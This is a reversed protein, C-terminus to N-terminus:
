LPDAAPAVVSVMLIRLLPLLLLSAKRWDASCRTLTMRMLVSVFLAEQVQMQLRRSTSVQALLLSSTAALGCRRRLKMVLGSVSRWKSGM